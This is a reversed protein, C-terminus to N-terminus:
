QYQSEIVLNSSADDTTGEFYVRIVDGAVFSLGAAGAIPANTYTSNNADGTGTATLSIGTMKKTASYIGNDNKTIFYNGGATKDTPNSIISIGTITGNHLATVGKNIKGYNFTKRGGLNSAPMFDWNWEVRKVISSNMSDVRTALTDINTQLATKTATDGDTFDTRLSTDATAFDAKIKADADQYATTVAADGNTIATNLNTDASKYESRVTEALVSADKAQQSVAEVAAQTNTATITPTATFALESAKTALATILQKLGVLADYVNTASFFASSLSVEQATQDDTDTDQFNDLKTGDAAIDRGNIKGNVTLDGSITTLDNADNGLKTNGEVGINGWIYLSDGIEFRMAQEAWKIVKKLTSGFELKIDGAADSSNLTFINGNSGNPILSSEIQGNSNLTPIKGSSTGIDDITLAETSIAYPASSLLKRDTANNVDSDIDLIEYQTNPADIAKVEIQLYKHIEPNLSPLPSNVGIATHFNGNRDATITQVEQYGSFSTTDLAISGDAALNPLVYDGTSWFSFRFDLPTTIPNNYADFIIGQYDITRPVNKQAYAPFTFLLTCAFISVLSKVFLSSRKVSRM